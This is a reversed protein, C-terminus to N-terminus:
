LDREWGIVDKQRKNGEWFSSGPSHEETGEGGNHACGGSDCGGREGAFYNRGGARDADEAGRSGSEIRVNM